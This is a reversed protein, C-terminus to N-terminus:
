KLITHSNTLNLAIIFHHSNIFIHCLYRLRLHIFCCKSGNLIVEVKLFRIESMCSIIEEQYFFHLQNELIKPKLCVCMGKTSRHFCFQLHSPIYMHCLFTNNINMPRLACRCLYLLSCKTELFVSQPSTPYFNVSDAPPSSIQLTKGWLSCVIHCLGCTDQEATCRHGDSFRVTTSPLQNFLSYVM